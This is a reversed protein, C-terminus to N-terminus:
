YKSWEPRVFEGVVDPAIRHVDGTAHLRVARRVADLNRGGGMPVDVLVKPQLRVAGDVDFSFAWHFREKQKAPASSDSERRFSNISQKPSM